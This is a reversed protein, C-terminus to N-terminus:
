TKYESLVILSSSLTYIMLLNLTISLNIILFFLDVLHDPLVIKFKLAAQIAFDHQTM